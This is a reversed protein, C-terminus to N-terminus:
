DEVHGLGEVGCVVNHRAGMGFPYAQRVGLAGLGELIVMQEAPGHEPPLPARLPAAVADGDEPPLALRRPQLPASASAVLVKVVFEGAGCDLFVRILQAQVVFVGTSVNRGCVIDLVAVVFNLICVIIKFCVTESAM